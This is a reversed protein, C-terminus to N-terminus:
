RAGRRAHLLAALRQAGADGDQHVEGRGRRERARPEARLRLAPPGPLRAAGADPHAPERARAAGGATEHARAGLEARGYARGAAGAAAAPPRRNALGLLRICFRPAALLDAPRRAHRLILLNGVRRRLRTARESETDAASGQASGSYPYWRAQRR